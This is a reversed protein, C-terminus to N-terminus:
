LGRVCLVLRWGPALRVGPVLLRVYRQHFQSNGILVLVITSRRIRLGCHDIMAQRAGRHGPFPCHRGLHYTGPGDYRGKTKHWM